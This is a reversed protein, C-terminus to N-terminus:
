KLTNKSWLIELLFQKSWRVTQWCDNCKLLIKCNLRISGTRIVTGHATICSQAIWLVPVLSLMFWIWIDRFLGLVFDPAWLQWVHLTVCQLQWRGHPQSGPWQVVEGLAFQPASQVGQSEVVSQRRLKAFHRGGFKIVIKPFFIVQCKVTWLHIVKAKCYWLKYKLIANIIIIIFWSQLLRVAFGVGLTQSMLWDFSLHLDLSKPKRFLPKWNGNACWVVSRLYTLSNHQDRWELWSSQTRLRLTVSPVISLQTAHCYRREWSWLGYGAWLHERGKGVGDKRKGKRSWGSIMQQMFPIPEGLSKLVPASM